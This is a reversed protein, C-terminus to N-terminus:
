HALFVPLATQEIMTRTTGGFIAEFMRAHGYAGLVIVDAGVESARDCICQAVERGGTPFQSLTVSCGHHSLWTAVDTGPDAGEGDDTVKPDFCAVIVEDAEHLYPLAVHVAKSAAESSDWAIFVKNIPKSPETNLMLGIPSKFLVGHAAERQVTPTDRLNDAIHAVDCVRAHHAVINKIDITSCLVAHINASVGSHALVEKIQTERDRLAKRTDNLVEGWNDPINMGGYPPVGYAYVPLPPAAGLMLLSLHINQVGAAEAHASITADPTDPNIILLTTTNKM